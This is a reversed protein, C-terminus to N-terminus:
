NIAGTAPVPAPAEAMEIAKRLCEALDRAAGLNCRLHATTVHRINVSGDKAPDLVGAGLEIRIMGNSHGFTAVGDFFVFLDEAM